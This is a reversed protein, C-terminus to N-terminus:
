TGDGLRAVRRELERKADANAMHDLAAANDKQVREYHAKAEPGKGQQELLRGIQLGALVGYSKPDLNEFKKWADIAEPLKNTAELTAARGQVALARAVPDAKEDAAFEDYLKLAEDFKGQEFRAGALGLGSIKGLPGGSAEDRAKGFAAAADELRKTREAPTLPDKPKETGGLVFQPLLNRAEGLPKTGDLFVAAKAEIAERKAKLAFHLVTSAAVAVVFVGVLKLRHKVIWELVKAGRDVFEDQNVEGLKDRLHELTETASEGSEPADPGDEDDVLEEGTEPEGDAKPIRKKIRKVM